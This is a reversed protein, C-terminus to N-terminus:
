TPPEYTGQWWIALTSGVLEYVDSRHWGGETDLYELALKRFLGEAGVRDIWEAELYWAPTADERWKLARAGGAELGGLEAWATLRNQGTYWMMVARIQKAPGRGVNLAGIM